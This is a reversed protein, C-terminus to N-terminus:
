PDFEQQHTLGNPDPPVVLQGRTDAAIAYGLPTNGIAGSVISLTWIGAAPMMFNCESVLLSFAMPTVPCIAAVGLPDITVLSVNNKEQLDKIMLATGFETSNAPVNYIYSHVQNSNIGNVFMTPEGDASAAQAEPAFTILGTTLAAIAAITVYKSIM